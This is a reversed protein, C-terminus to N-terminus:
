SPEAEPEAEFDLEELEAFVNRVHDYMRRAIRVSLAIDQSGDLGNQTVAHVVRGTRFCVMTKVLRGLGEVQEGLLLGQSGDGIVAVRFETFDTAGREDVLAGCYLSLSDQAAEVDAYLTSQVTIFAPGGLPFSGSWSFERFAGSVRGRAELQTIKGRLNEVNFLQAWGPNDFTNTTVNDMGIPLDDVDLLM